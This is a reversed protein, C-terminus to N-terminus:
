KLHTCKETTLARQRRIIKRDFQEISELQVYYQTYCGVCCHVDIAMIPSIFRDYIIKQAQIVM